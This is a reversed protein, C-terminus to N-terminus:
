YSVETTYFCWLLWALLNFLFIARECYIPAIRVPRVNGSRPLKSYRIMVVM